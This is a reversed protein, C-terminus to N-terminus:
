ATNPLPWCLSAPSSPRISSRTLEVPEIRLELEGRTVRSVELLDDVLRRMNVIQRQMMEGIAATEPNDDFSLNL